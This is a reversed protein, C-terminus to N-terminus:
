ENEVRERVIRIIKEGPFNSYLLFRGSTFFEEYNNVAVITDLKDKPKKFNDKKLNVLCNYYDKVMQTVIRTALEKVGDYQDLM